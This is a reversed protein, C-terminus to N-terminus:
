YARLALPLTVRYGNLQGYGNNGWCTWYGNTRLGCTHESGASVQTFTGGPPTAQGDKYDLPLRLVRVSHWCPQAHLGDV